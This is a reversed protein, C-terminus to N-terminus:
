HFEFVAAGCYATNEMYGSIRSPFLHLVQKGHQRETGGYEIAAHRSKCGIAGASGSSTTVRLFPLM